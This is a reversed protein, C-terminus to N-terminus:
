MRIFFFSFSIFAIISSFHFSFVTYNRTDFVPTSLTTFLSIPQNKQSKPELAIQKFAVVDDSGDTEEDDGDDIMQNSRKSIGRQIVEANQDESDINGYRKANLNRLSRSAALNDAYRAQARLRNM